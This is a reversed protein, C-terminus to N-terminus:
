DNDHDNDDDGVDDNNNYDNDVGGGHVHDYIDHEVDNQVMMMM